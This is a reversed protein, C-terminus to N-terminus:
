ASRTPGPKGPEPPAKPPADALSEARAKRGGIGSYTLKIIWAVLFSIVAGLGYVFLMINVSGWFTEM